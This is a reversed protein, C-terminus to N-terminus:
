KKSQGYGSANVDGRFLLKIDKVADAANITISNDDIVFDSAPFSNIIRITRNEIMDTDLSDVSTDNNVDAALLPLGDLAFGPVNNYHLAAALADTANIGEPQINGDIEIQYNGPRLGAFGYGGVSDSMVSDIRCSEEDLLYIKVGPMATQASDDYIINGSVHFLEHAYAKICLDYHYPTGNGVPYWYTPWLSPDPAIWYKGSELVPQAYDNITDEIAIPWKDQPDNSDYRIQVYFDEGAPIQIASDLEFTHYGPLELMTEAMSGLLGYVSDQFHDFIKIEVGCNTSVIFSGIKSIETDRNTGEFKVLGYGVESDFGVGWYGGIEDYQYIYTGTENEMVEPWYGNYKGFQSDNYSIYYYGGDGFGQGWTNRVIWAGPGGATTLTDNWGVIVGAHNVSNGTYYYTFNEPDYYAENWLLLSWVPGYDMVTQKIYDINQPPPYRSEHIYYLASFETPCNDNSSTGGPYPDESELYPGSRRAFYASSMWHNGNTNRSPVYGHCFKLNNDSLNYEPYGLMLLRSEVCGMTSYAWCGGPSQSKVPTLFGSGRMDYVVPFDRNLEYEFNKWRDFAPMIPPLVIGNKEMEILEEPSISFDPDAPAKQPLPQGSLNLVLLILFPLTFKKM